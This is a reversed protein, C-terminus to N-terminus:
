IFINKQNLNKILNKSDIEPLVLKVKVLFKKIKLLVQDLQLM